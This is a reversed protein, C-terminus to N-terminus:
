FYKRVKDGKDYWVYLNDDYLILNYFKEGNENM